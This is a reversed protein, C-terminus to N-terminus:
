PAERLDYYSLAYREPTQEVVTARDYVDGQMQVDLCDACDFGLGAIFTAAADDWDTRLLTQEGLTDLIADPLDSAGSIAFSPAHFQVDPFLIEAGGRTAPRRNDADVVRAQQMPDIRLDTLTVGPPLADRILATLLAAHTDVNLPRDSARHITPLAIRANPTTQAVPHTGGGEATLDLVAFDPASQIAALTDLYATYDDFVEDIQALPQATAILMDIDGSQSADAACPTSGCTLTFVLADDRYLAVLPAGGGTEDTALFATDRAAQLASRDTVVLNTEDPGAGYLVLALQGNELDQGALFYVPAPGDPAPEPAITQPTTPAETIGEATQPPPDGGTSRVLSFGAFALLGGIVLVGIFALRIM